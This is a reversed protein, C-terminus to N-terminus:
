LFRAPKRLRRISCPFNEGSTSCASTIGWHLSIGMFHVREPPSVAYHHQAPDISDHKCRRQRHHHNYSNKINKLFLLSGYKLFIDALEFSLFTRILLTSTCKKDTLGRSIVGEFVVDRVILVAQDALALELLDWYQTLSSVGLDVWQQGWVESGWGQRAWSPWWGTDKTRIYRSWFDIGSQPSMALFIYFEAM